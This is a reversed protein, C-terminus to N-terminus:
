VSAELRKQEAERDKAAASATKYTCDSPREQRMGLWKKIPPCKKDLIPKLMSYPTSSHEYNREVENLKEYEHKIDGYTYGKNIFKDIIDNTWASKQIYCEKRVSSYPPKGNIREDCNRTTAMHKMQNYRTLVDEAMRKDKYNEYGEERALAEDHQYNTYGEALAQANRAKEAEAEEAKNVIDQRAIILAEDLEKKYDDPFLWWTMSRVIYKADELSKAHNILYKEIVINPNIFEDSIKRFNTLITGRAKEWQQELTEDTLITFRFNGSNEKKFNEWEEDGGKM